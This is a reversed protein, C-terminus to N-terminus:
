TSKYLAKNCLVEDRFRETNVVRVRVMGAKKPFADLRNKFANVSPAEVIYSTLCNWDNVVRQTFFNKIVNL